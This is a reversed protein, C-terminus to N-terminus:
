EKKKQRNRGYKDILFSLCIASEDDENDIKQTWGREYEGTVKDDKRIELEYIRSGHIGFISEGKSRRMTWSMRHGNIVIEGTEQPYHQNKM